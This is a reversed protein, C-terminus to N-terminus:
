KHYETCNNYCLINRLEWAWGSQINMSIIKHWLDDTRIGCDNEFFKKIGLPKVKLFWNHALPFIYNIVVIDNNKKNHIVCTSIKWVYAEDGRHATGGPLQCPILLGTQETHYCKKHHGVPVFIFRFYQLVTSSKFDMINPTFDAACPTFDTAGPM